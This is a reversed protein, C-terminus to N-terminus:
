HLFVEGSGMTALAEGLGLALPLPVVEVLDGTGLLAGLTRAAPGLPGAGFSTQRDGSEDSGARCLVPATDEVLSPV